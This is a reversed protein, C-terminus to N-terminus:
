SSDFVDHYGLNRPSGGCVICRPFAGGDYINSIRISADDPVGQVGDVMGRIDGIGFSAM